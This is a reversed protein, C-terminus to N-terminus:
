LADVVDLTVSETCAVRFARSSSDVTSGPSMVASAMPVVCKRLAMMSLSVDRTSFIATRRRAECLKEVPVGGKASQGEARFRMMLPWEAMMGPPAGEDAGDVLVGDPVLRPLDLGLAEPVDGDDADAAAGVLVVALLVLDFPDQAGLQALADVDDERVVDGAGTEEGALVGGDEVGRDEVEGLAGDPGEDAGHAADAEAARQIEGGVGAVQQGEGLGHLRGDADEGGARGVGDPAGGEERPVGDVPGAADDDVDAAGGGVHAVEQAVAVRPEGLAVRGQGADLDVQLHGRDLADAESAARDQVRAAAAAVVAGHSDSRVANAVVEDGLGEAESAVHRRRGVNGHSRGAGADAVGGHRQRGLDDVLALRPDPLHQLGDDVAGLQRGLRAGDDEDAATGDEARRLERADALDDHRLVGADGVGDARGDGLDVARGLGDDVAGVDLAADGLDLGLRDPVRHGLASVLAGGHRDQVLLDGADRVDLVLRGDLDLDGQGGVVLPDVGLHHLRGRRVLLLVVVVVVLRDVEPAVLGLDLGVAQPREGVRIEPEQGDAAVDESAAAAPRGVRRVQLQPLEQGLPLRDPNHADLVELVVLHHRGDGADARRRHADLAGPAVAHPVGHLLHLLLHPGPELLQDGRLDSAGVANGRQDPAARPVVVDRGWNSITECYMWALDMLSSSGTVRQLPVPWLTTMGAVWVSSVDAPMAMRSAQTAMPEAAPAEPRGIGPFSMRSTPMGLVYESAQRRPRTTASACCRPVTALTVPSMMSAAPPGPLALTSNWPLIRPTSLVRVVVACLRPLTVTSLSLSLSISVSVSLTPSPSRSTTTGKIFSFRPTETSQCKALIFFLDKSSDGVEDEEEVGGGALGDADLLVPVAEFDGDHDHRSVREPRRLARELDRPGLDKAQRVVVLRRQAVRLGRADNVLKALTLTLKPHSPLSLQVLQWYLHYFGNSLM